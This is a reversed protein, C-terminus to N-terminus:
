TSNTDCTHQVCVVGAQASHLQVSGGVKSWDDAVHRLERSSVAMPVLVEDEQHDRVADDRVHPHGFLDSEGLKM